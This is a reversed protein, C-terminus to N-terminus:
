TPLAAFPDRPLRRAVRTLVPASDGRDQRFDPVWIRFCSGRGVVSTAGITGGIMALM